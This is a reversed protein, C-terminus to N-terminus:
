AVRADIKADQLRAACISATQHQFLGMEGREALWALLWLLASLCEQGPGHKLLFLGRWRPLDCLFITFEGVDTAFSNGM